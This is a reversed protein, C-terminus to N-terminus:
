ASAGLRYIREMLDATITELEAATARKGAIEPIYPEGFIVKIPWLPKKKQTIYVPQIPVGARMALMVAGTKPEVTQGPRVRTGEPFVIVTTGSKLYTLTEKVAALDANGRDIGYGGMGRCFGGIIPLSMVEKKAMFKMPRKTGLASGIWFPDAMSSHNACVMCTGPHINERGILKSFPHWIHVALWCFPFFFRYFRNM